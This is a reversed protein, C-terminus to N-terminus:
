SENIKHEKSVGDTFMFIKDGHLVVAGIISKYEKALKALEDMTKGQCIFDRTEKDYLYLTDNVSETELRRIKVVKIEEINSKESIDIDLAKAIDKISERLRFLTIAEGVFYGAAFIVCLFIFSVIDM